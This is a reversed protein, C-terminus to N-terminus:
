LYLPNVTNGPYVRWYQKAIILATRRLHPPVSLSLWVTRNEIFETEYEDFLIRINQNRFRISSNDEGAVFYRSENFIDYDSLITKHVGDCVEGNQIFYASNYMIGNSIDLNPAGIIAAMPGCAEALRDVAMRCADIFDERELWDGAMPGCVALEPFVILDAKESRAKRIAQLM